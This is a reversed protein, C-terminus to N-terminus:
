VFFIELIYALNLFQLLAIQIQGLILILKTLTVGIMYVPLIFILYQLFM